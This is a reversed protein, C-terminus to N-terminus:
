GKLVYYYKNADKIELWDTGFIAQIKSKSIQIANSGVYVIRSSESKVVLNDGVIYIDSFQTGKKFGSSGSVGSSFLVMQAKTLRKVIKVNTFVTLGTKVSERFQQIKNLFIDSLVFSAVETGSADKLLIDDFEAAKFNRTLSWNESQGLLNSNTQDINQFVQNGVVDHKKWVGNDKFVSLDPLAVKEHGTDKRVWDYSINTSNWGGEPTALTPVQFRSVEDGTGWASFTQVGYYYWHLIQHASLKSEEALYRGGNQSLGVGSGNTTPTSGGHGIPTYCSRVAFYYIHNPAGVGNADPPNIRMRSRYGSNVSSGAKFPATVINGRHYMVEGWNEYVADEIVLRFLDNSHLKSYRVLASLHNLGFVQFTDEPAVKIVPQNQLYSLRATKKEGSIMLGVVYSRAATMQAKLFEARSKLNTSLNSNFAGGFTAVNNSVSKNGALLNAVEFFPVRYIYEELGYLGLKIGQGANHLAGVQSYPRLATTCIYDKANRGDVFLKAGVMKFLNTTYKLRNTEGTSFDPNTSPQSNIKAFLVPEPVTVDSPPKNTSTHWASRPINAVKNGNNIGYPKVFYIDSDGNVKESKYLENIMGKVLTVDRLNKSLFGSRYWHAYVARINSSFSSWKEFENLRVVILKNPNKQRLVVTESEFFEHLVTDLRYRKEESIFASSWNTITASPNFGGGFPGFLKNYANVSSHTQVYADISSSSTPLAGPPLQHRPAIFDYDTKNLKLDNNDTDMKLLIALPQFPHSYNKFDFTSVGFIENNSLNLIPQGGQVNVGCFGNSNAVYNAMGDVNRAVAQGNVITRILLERDPKGLNLDYDVFASKIVGVILKEKDTANAAIGAVLANNMEQELYTLLNNANMAQELFDEELYGLRFFLYNLLLANKVVTVYQTRADLHTRNTTFEFKHPILRVQPNELLEDYRHSVPSPLPWWKKRASNIASTQLVFHGKNSVNMLFLVGALPAVMYGDSNMSKILMEQDQLLGTNYPQLQFEFNKGVKSSVMLHANNDSGLVKVGLAKEMWKQYYKSKKTKYLM